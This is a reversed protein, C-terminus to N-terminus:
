KKDINRLERKLIRHYPRRDIYDKYDSGTGLMTVPVGLEDELWDLYWRRYRDLYIGTCGDYKGHIGEFGSDLHEFFNLYIEDPKNEFVTEKLLDIDIDFVRRVKKTVTTYETFSPCIGIYEEIDDDTIETPYQGLFAGVAIQEWTLEGSSGYDGSYVQKGDFRENSIRIPFPRIVMIVKKLFKYSIKSDSLMQMVSVQRSTVHPYHRVSNLDLDCGQSGEILIRRANLLYYKLREHYDTCAKISKFEKFFEVNTSRMRKENMCPCCGKYTSGSVIERKEMERHRSKILPVLPHVIIERGELIDRNAYYEEELVDMDIVSGPGIFLQTNLNVASVPINRFVRKRGDMVFTHGANPMANSIAAEVNENIAYQGIAKGKGSSGAQGDIIVYVNRKM